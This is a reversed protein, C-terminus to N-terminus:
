GAPSRWIPNDNFGRFTCKQSDTPGKDTFFVGHQGNLMMMISEVQQDDPIYENTVNLFQVAQIGKQQMYADEEGVDIAATEGHCVAEDDSEDKGMGAGTEAWEKKVQKLKEELQGIKEGTRRRQQRDLAAQKEEQQQEQWIEDVTPEEKM